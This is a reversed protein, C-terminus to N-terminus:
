KFKCNNFTMQPSTQVVKLTTYLTNIMVTQIDDFICNDFEIHFNNNNYTISFFMLYEGIKYNRFHINKFIIKVNSAQSKFIFTFQSGSEQFDFVTGNNSHFILSTYLNFNNRGKNSIKYEDDDFIMTIENNDTNLSLENIKDVFNDMSDEDNNIKVNVMYVKYIYGFLLILIKIYM